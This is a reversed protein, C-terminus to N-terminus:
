NAQRELNFNIQYMAPCVTFINQSTSYMCLYEHYQKLCYAAFFHFLCYCDTDAKLVRFFRLKLSWIHGIENWKRHDATAVSHDTAWGRQSFVVWRGWPNVFLFTEKNSAQTHSFQKSHVTKSIPSMHTSNTETSKPFKSCFSIPLCNPSLILAFRKKSDRYCNLNLNAKNDNCCTCRFTLHLGKLASFYLIYFSQLCLIYFCLILFIFFIFFEIYM